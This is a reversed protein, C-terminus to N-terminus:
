KGYSGDVSAANDCSMGKALNASKEKVKAAAQLCLDV